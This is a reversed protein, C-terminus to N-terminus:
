SLCMAKPRTKGDQRPSMIECVSKSSKLLVHQRSEYHGAPQFRLSTWCVFGCTSQLKNQMHTIGSALIALAGTAPSVAVNLIGAADSAGQKEGHRTMCRSPRCSVGCELNPM